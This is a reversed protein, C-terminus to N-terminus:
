TDSDNNKYALYEDDAKAALIGYQAEEKLRIATYWRLYMMQKISLPFYPSSDFAQPVFYISTVFM